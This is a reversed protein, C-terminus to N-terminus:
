DLLEALFALLGMADRQRGRKWSDDMRKPILLVRRRKRKTSMAEKHKMGRTYPLFFWKESQLETIIMLETGM